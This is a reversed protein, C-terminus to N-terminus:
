LMEINDLTDKKRKANTKNLKKIIGLNSRFNTQDNKEDALSIKSERKKDLLNLANDFEDFQAEATPGKYKYILDDPNVKEDLMTIEELREDVLKNFM